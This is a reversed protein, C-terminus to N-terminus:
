EDGGCDFTVGLLVLVLTLTAIGAGQVDGSKWFTADLCLDFAIDTHCLTENM